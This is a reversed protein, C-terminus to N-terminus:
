DEPHGEFYGGGGGGRGGADHLWQLLSGFLFQVGPVPKPYIGLPCRCYAVLYYWVGLGLTSGVPSSSSLGAECCSSAFCQSLSPVAPFRSSHPSLALGPGRSIALLQLHGISRM